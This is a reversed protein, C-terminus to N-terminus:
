KAMYLIMYSRSELFVTSNPLAVSDPVHSIGVSPPKRSTFLWM